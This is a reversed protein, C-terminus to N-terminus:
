CSTREAAPPWLLPFRDDDAPYEGPAISVHEQTVIPDTGPHPYWTCDDGLWRTSIAARRKVTSANGRAGHLMWASFILADGPEVSWGAIPYNARNQEIPPVPVGIGGRQWANPHNDRDGFVQPLYYNGDRHSGLVFELASEEVTVASLAVWVSCIQRGKFPWYPTDQHWPTPAVTGPEKILLHDFYFRASRSQMAEAALQAIGSEFVFARVDADERWRYRDTFLRNHTQGPNADNVWRGPADLQRQAMGLLREIWRPEVADRVCIAGDRDFAEVETNTLRAKM